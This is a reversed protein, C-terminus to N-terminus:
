QKRKEDSEKRTRTVWEQADEGTIPCPAAGSIESWKRRPRLGSCSIRCQEVLYVILQLKEEPDLAEAKKKLESLGDKGM